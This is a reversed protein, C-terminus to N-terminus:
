TRNKEARHLLWNVLAVLGGKSYKAGVLRMAEMYLDHRGSETPFAADIAADEPLPKDDQDKWAGEDPIMSDQGYKYALQLAQKLNVVEVRAMTFPNSYTLSPVDLVGQAIEELKEDRGKDSMPKGKSITPQKFCGIACM